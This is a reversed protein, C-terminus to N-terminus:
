YNKKELHSDKLSWGLALIGNNICYDSVSQDTDNDTKTQLRWISIDNRKETAKFLDRNEM